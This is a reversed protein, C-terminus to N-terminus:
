PKKGPPEMSKIMKLKGTNKDRSISDVRKLKLKVKGELGAQALAEELTHTVQPEIEVEAKQPVYYFTLENRASQVIQYQRLDNIYFLPVLFHYPHIKKYRGSPNEFYMFDTTRGQVPLLNPFSSGCECKQNAYGVVDEIEYRIIPQTFNFLNTLLVKEGYQGQVVPNYDRDVVELICLNSM